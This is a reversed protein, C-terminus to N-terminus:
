LESISATKRSLAPRFSSSYLTRAKGSSEVSRWGRKATSSYQGSLDGNLEIPQPIGGWKSPGASILDDNCPRKIRFQARSGSAFTVSLCGGRYRYVLKPDHAALDATDQAGHSPALTSCRGSGSKVSLM